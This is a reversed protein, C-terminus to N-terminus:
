ARTPNTLEYYKPCSLSDSCHMCDNGFSVISGGQMDCRVKVFRENERIKKGKAIEGEIQTKQTLLRKIEEIEEKNSEFTDITYQKEDITAKYGQKEKDFTAKNLIITKNLDATKSCQSCEKDKEATHAEIIANQGEITEDHKSIVVDKEALQKDRKTLEKKLDLIVAQDNEPNRKKKVTVQSLGIYEQFHKLRSEYSKLLAESTSLSKRFHDFDELTVDAIHINRKKKEMDEKFKNLLWNETHDKRTQLYETIVRSLTTKSDFSGELPFIKLTSNSEYVM